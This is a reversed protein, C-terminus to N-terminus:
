DLLTRSAKLIGYHSTESAREIGSIYTRDLDCKDAFAEQSLGAANRLPRVAKGFRVLIEARQGM